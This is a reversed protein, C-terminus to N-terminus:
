TDHPRCDRCVTRHTAFFGRNFFDHLTEVTHDSTSHNDIWSKAAGIDPSPAPPLDPVIGARVPWGSRDTERANDQYYM